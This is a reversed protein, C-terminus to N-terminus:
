AATCRCCRVRHLDSCQWVCRSLPTTPTLPNCCWPIARAAPLVRWWPVANKRFDVTWNTICSTMSCPRWCKVCMGFVHAATHYARTKSEMAHHVLMGLQETEAMSISASVASLADDFLTIIRNVTSLAM